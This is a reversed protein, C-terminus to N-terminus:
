FNMNELKDFKPLSSLIIIIGVVVILGGVLSYTQWHSFKRMEIQKIRENPIKGSFASEKHDVTLIGACWLGPSQDPTIIVYNEEEFYIYTSDPLYCVIYRGIFGLSDISSRDVKGIFEKDDGRIFRHKQKGSGYIFNSPETTYIYHYPSSEIVSGDVLTITIAEDQSKQDILEEHTLDSLPYCGYLLVSCCLFFIFTKKMIDQM